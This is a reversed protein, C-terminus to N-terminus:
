ADDRVTENHLVMAQTFKETRTPPNEILELVRLLERRTLIITSESEVFKKKLHLKTKKIM